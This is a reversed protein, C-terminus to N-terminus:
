CCSRTVQEKGKEVVRLDVIDSSTTAALASLFTKGGKGQQAKLSQQCRRKAKGERGEDNGEIEGALEFRVSMSVNKNM